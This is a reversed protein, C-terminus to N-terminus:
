KQLTQSSPAFYGALDLLQRLRLGRISIMRDFAEQSYMHELYQSLIGAIENAERLAIDATPSIWLPNSQNSTRKRKM